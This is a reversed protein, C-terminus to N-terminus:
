KEADLASLPKESKIINEIWVSAFNWKGEVIAYLIRWRGNNISEIRNFITKAMSLDFSYGDDDLLGGYDRAYWQAKKLDEIAQERDGKRGARWVYKFACGLDYPLHRAIDICEIERTKFLPMYHPPQNVYDVANAQDEM